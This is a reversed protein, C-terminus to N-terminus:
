LALRAGEILIAMVVCATVIRGALFRHVAEGGCQMLFLRGTLGRCTGLHAELASLDTPSTDAAHSFSSTTWNPRTTM